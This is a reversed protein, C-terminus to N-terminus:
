SNNNKGLNILINNVARNIDFSAFIKDIEARSDKDSV